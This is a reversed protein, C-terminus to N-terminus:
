PLLWGSLRGSQFFNRKKKGPLLFSPQTEGRPQTAIATPKWIRRGTTRWFAIWYFLKREASRPKAIIKRGVSGDRSFSSKIRKTKLAAERQNYM